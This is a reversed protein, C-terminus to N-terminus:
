LRSGHRVIEAVERQTAVSVSEVSMHAQPLTAGHICLLPRVPTTSGSAFVDAIAAEWRLEPLPGAV